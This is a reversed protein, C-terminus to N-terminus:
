RGLLHRLAGELGPFRFEYGTQQLKEPLVRASALLLEDAMQGLALKAAFAPLPLITPRKLVKGLTKTFEANTTPNPATANFPGSFDEYSLAHHIAGILDDM